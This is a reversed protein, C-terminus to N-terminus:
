ALGFLRKRARQLGLLPVRLLAQASHAATTVKAYHSQEILM